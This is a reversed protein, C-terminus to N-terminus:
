ICLEFTMFKTRIPRTSTPPASGKVSKEWLTCARAFALVVHMHALAFLFNFYTSLAYQDLCMCTHAHMLFSFCTSLAYQDDQLARGVQERDYYFGTVSKEWVTWARAFALLEQSTDATTLTASSLLRRSYRCFLSFSLWIGLAYLLIEVGKMVRGYVYGIFSLYCIYIFLIIYIINIYIFLMYKNWQYVCM